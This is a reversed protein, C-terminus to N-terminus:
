AASTQTQQKAALIEKLPRLGNKKRRLITLRHSLEDKSWNVNPNIQPVRESLMARFTDTEAITDASVEHASAIEEYAQRLATDWAPDVKTKM